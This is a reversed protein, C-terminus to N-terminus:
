NPFLENWIEDLKQDAAERDAKAKDLPLDFLANVGEYDPNRSIVGTNEDFLYANKDYLTGSSACLYLGRDAFMEMNDCETIRYQVGDVVVECYGGDLVVLNIWKPDQGRILPSVFFSQEGYADDATGPMPTKDTREIAVVTYTSDEDVANAMEEYRTLNEGSVVGLFTVTYDRFTQTANVLIANDGSFAEQLGVNGIEEAVQEPRLYNWVGFATLVGMTLVAAALVAYRVKRKYRKNKETKMTVSGKAKKMIQACLREDPEQTPSLADKLLQDMEKDTM